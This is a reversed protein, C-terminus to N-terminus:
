SRGACALYGSGRNQRCRSRASRGWHRAVERLNRSGTSPRWRRPCCVFARCFVTPGAGARVGRCAAARRKHQQNTLRSPSRQGQRRGLPCRLRQRGPRQGARTQHRRHLLVAPARRLDGADQRRDAQGNGAARGQRRARRGTLGNHSGAALRPRLRRLLRVEATATLIAQPLRENSPADARCPADSERQHREPSM